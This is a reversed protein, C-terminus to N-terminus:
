SMRKNVYSTMASSLLAAALLTQLKDLKGPTLWTYCPPLIMHLVFILVGLLTCAVVTWLVIIAALNAHNRFTQHRDHEREQGDRELDGHAAFELAESKALSEGSDSADPQFAM